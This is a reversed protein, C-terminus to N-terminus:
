EYTITFELNSEASSSSELYSEVLGDSNLTISVDKVVDEQFDNFDSKDRFESPITKLLWLDPDDGFFLVLGISEFPYPNADYENVVILKRASEIQQIVGESDYTIEISDDFGTDRELKSITGIKDLDNYSIEFDFTETCEPLFGTNSGVTIDCYSYSKIRGEPDYAINYLSDYFFGDSLDFQRISALQDGSYRLYIKEDVSGAEEIEISDM